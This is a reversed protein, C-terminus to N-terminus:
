WIYTDEICGTVAFVAISLTLVLVTRPTLNKM